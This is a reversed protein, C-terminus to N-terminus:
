APVYVHQKMSEKSFKFFQLVCEQKASLEISGDMEGSKFKSIKEDATRINTDCISAAFKKREGDLSSIRNKSNIEKQKENVQESILRERIDPMVKRFGDELLGDTVLQDYFGAPWLKTREIGFSLFHQYEQEILQGWHIEKRPGELYKLDSDPPPIYKEIHRYEVEAWRRFSNIISSLYLVSFNEYCRVEEMPLDLEGKVAMKVESISHGGYNEKIFQHLFLTELDNPLSKERLGVLLFCFKFLENLNHVSEEVIKKGKIATLLNSAGTTLPESKQTAPLLHNQDQMVQGISKIEDMEKV